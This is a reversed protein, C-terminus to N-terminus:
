NLDIEFEKDFMYVVLQNLQNYHEKLDSKKMENSRWADLKQNTIKFIENEYPHIKQYIGTNDKNVLANINVYYKAAWKGWRISFFKKKLELAAYCVPADNFKDNRKLVDPFDHEGKVWAPLAISTLPFGVVSWLTTFVPDEGKKVGQVVCASATSRRPIFDHFFSYTPTNEPIDAYDRYLDDKTLSHKLSRTVDQLIFQADFTNTAMANYFLENATNSRLYGSSEEGFSGMYSYNSRIIYGFPAVKADNADFKVYGKNNVEYMAAGGQADIVGFNGELRTPIPLSDLYKEFDEISACTALAEKIIRGEFGSLKTDDGINLNYSASNMIAFGTSNQGIWVSKGQTDKSNVLGVYNYKGDNFYVIQNNIAPTDRNKWLLPRGDKTYKGSIVAVTCASAQYTVFFLSLALLITKLFKM